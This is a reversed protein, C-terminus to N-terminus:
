KRKGKKLFRDFKPESFKTFEMSAVGKQQMGQETFTIKVPVGIHKSVIDSIGKEFGDDTYVEWPGNHKVWILYYTDEQQFLIEKVLPKEGDTEGWISSGDCSVTKNVKIAYVINKM